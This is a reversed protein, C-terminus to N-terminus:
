RRLSRPSARSRAWQIKLPEAFRAVDAGVIESWRTILERSAFGQKAFLDNITKGLIEALPKAFLHGPRRM